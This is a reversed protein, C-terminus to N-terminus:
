DVLERDQTLERFYRVEVASGLEAKVRRALAFGDADAEALADSPERWGPRDANGYLNTLRDSWHQLDARLPESLRDKVADASNGWLPFALYDWMVEVEATQSM